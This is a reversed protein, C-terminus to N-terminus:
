QISRNMGLLEEQHVPHDAPNANLEYLTIIPDESLETFEGKLGIYYLRTIEEESFSGTIFLTLSRVARFHTLRCSKWNYSAHYCFAFIYKTPYEAIEGGPPDVICDWTQLPEMSEVSGFDIDERNIWSCFFIMPIKVKGM